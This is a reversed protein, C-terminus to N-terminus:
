KLFGNIIAEEAENEAQELVFDREAEADDIIKKIKSDIEDQVAQIFKNLKENDNNM